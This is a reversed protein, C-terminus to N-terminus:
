FARYNKQLLDNQNSQSMTLTCHGAAVTLGLEELNTCPLPVTDTFKPVMLFVGSQFLDIYLVNLRVVDATIYKEGADYLCVLRM